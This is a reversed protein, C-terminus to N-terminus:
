ALKEIYLVDSARPDKTGTSAWLLRQPHYGADVIRKWRPSATLERHARYTRQAIAIGLRDRLGEPVKSAVAVHWRSIFLSAVAGLDPKLRQQLRRGVGRLHAEGAALYQERSFLLTVNISIGSCIAAEIAPLGQKSGPVKIFLNPRNARASLGKAAALSS